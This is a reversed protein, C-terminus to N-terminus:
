NIKKEEREENLFSQLEPHSQRPVDHIEEDLLFCHMMADGSTGYVGMSVAGVIFGILVM